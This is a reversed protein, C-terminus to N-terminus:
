NEVLVLTGNELRYVCDANGLPYLGHTAIILAANGEKARLELHKTIGAGTESDVSGTPEDAFLIVPEKVLMRAVAVRQVEWVILECPFNDLRDGLGMEEVVQASKKRLEDASSEKHAIAVEVNELATLSPILNFEQFIIGMKERRLKATESSSMVDVPKGMFIIEGSDPTNLGSLIDLLTSKGAGSKGSIVTVEGKKVEINVGDLVRIDKNKRTYTKKVEKCSLIIDSQASNLEPKEM